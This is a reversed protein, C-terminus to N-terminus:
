RRSMGKTKLVQTFNYRVLATVALGILFLIFGVIHSFALFVFLGLGADALLSWKTIRRMMAAPRNPVLAM